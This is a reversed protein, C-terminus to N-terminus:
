FTMESLYYLVIKLIVNPDVIMRGGTRLSYGGCHGPIEFVFGYEELQQRDFFESWVIKEKVVTRPLM